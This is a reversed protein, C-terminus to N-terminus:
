SVYYADESWKQPNTQIYEAIKLYSKEDRIVHEYYNRGWIKENFIPWGHHHVSRIYANTTLSKFAGVVNGLNTNTTMAEGLLIEIIGHLHNPMVIFEKLVVQQFRAPIKLWQEVVMAGADNLVMNGEVVKGFLPRREHVCITIFYFGPQSYDYEKLRISQRHHANPNSQM